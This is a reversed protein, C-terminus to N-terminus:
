MEKISSDVCPLELNDTRVDKAMSSVSKFDIMDPASRKRVGDTKTIKLKFRKGRIHSHATM